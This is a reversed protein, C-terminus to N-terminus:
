SCSAAAASARGGLCACVAPTIYTKPNKKGGTDNCPATVAVQWVQELLTVSRKGGLDGCSTTLTVQRVQM